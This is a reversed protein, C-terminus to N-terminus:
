FAQTFRIYAQRGRVDHITTEYGPRNRDGLSPPDEDLLNNAGISITTEGDGFLGEMLFTYQADVTTWSDVVFDDSDQDNVYSDIYRLILNASHNGQNWGATLNGRWEPTPRFPNLFNRSGVADFPADDESLQVEFENVFTAKLGLRLEGVDGLDIDYDVAFDLGNTEVSGANIFESTVERVVGGPDRIIRPDNAIGDDLCDNEIIAQAGEDPTILNTYDFQWYDVSVDMSELPQFVLGLAISDATQPSLDPNGENRVTVNTSIDRNVCELQGTIPSISAPDDVFASQTSTSQQRVSPAQFSSGFSGRVAVSDNIQWRGAIKPDTTSLGTEFSEHRIALQLEFNDSIPLQAEAFVSDVAQEGAITPAIDFNGNRGGSGSTSLPDQLDLLSERRNQFGFAFGMEGGALEGWTGSLVVDVVTQTSEAEARSTRWLARILEDSNGATSVGDKPSILDPNSISTGFPNWVGGTLGFQDIASAGFDNITDAVWEALEQEDTRRSAAYMFSTNLNWNEGIAIDAGVVGRWYDIDIDRRFQSGNFDVGLPRLIGRLPAGTHIANDWADPGVYFLEGSDNPDEIFFNFPHDGPILVNGGQALGNDFLDPGKSRLVRSRSFSGEMFLEVNDSVNFSGESFMQFVSNEPIVSVQDAFDHRCRSDDANRLVGGAALCDPDPVTSGSSTTFGGNGDPTALQYSGPSGTSSILRSNSLDGTHDLRERLWDFDTRDNRTNARYTVYLGIEAADTKGGAALNITTSSNSASQYKGSVEFGEFGKRTIINAVGAVAQSGYTASAGDTLIDIREIMALPLQNIDFFQNGGGDAVASIGGRRGNILTLSSGLGLGRINFQSTGILSGTENQFESGGSVTLNKAIDVVTDAAFGTFEERDVLQVPSNENFGTSRILSGTVVVEEEISGEEALLQAPLMLATGALAMASCSIAHCLKNRKVM